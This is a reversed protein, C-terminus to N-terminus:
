GIEGTKENCAHMEDSYYKSNEVAIMKGRARCSNGLALVEQLNHRPKKPLLQAEIASHREGAAKWAGTRQPLQPETQHIRRIPNTFASWQVCLQVVYKRQRASCRAACILLASAFIRARRQNSSKYPASRCLREPRETARILATERDSRNSCNYPVSRCLREPRETAGIFM